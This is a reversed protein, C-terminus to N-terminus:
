KDQENKEELEGGKGVVSKNKSFFVVIRKWYIRVSVGVAAAIAILSQIILSGTGPDIYANARFPSGFAVVCLVVVVFFIRAM